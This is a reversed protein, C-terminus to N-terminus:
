LDLSKTIGKWEKRINRTDLYVEVVNDDPDSIYLTKSIGYDTTTISLDAAKFKKYFQKLEKIDKVELAFHFLGTSFRSPKPADKGVNMLALDHHHKGLTLFVYQKGVRETVKFGLLSTYFKEAKDLDSVKLHVHGLHDPKVM